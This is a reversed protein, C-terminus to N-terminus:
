QLYAFAEEDEESLWSESLLSEDALVECNERDSVELKQNIQHLEQQMSQIALYIENLTIQRQEM